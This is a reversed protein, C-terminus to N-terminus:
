GGVIRTKRVKREQSKDGKYQECKATVYKEYKATVKKKMFERAKEYQRENRRGTSAEPGFTTLEVKQQEVTQQM